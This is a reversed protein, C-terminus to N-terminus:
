SCKLTNATTLRKSKKTQTMSSKPKGQHTKMM